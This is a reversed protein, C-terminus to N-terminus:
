VKRCNARTSERTFNHTVRRLSNYTLRLRIGNPLCTRTDDLFEEIYDKHAENLLLNILHPYQIISLEEHDDLSNRWSKMRQPKQNTVTLQEMM